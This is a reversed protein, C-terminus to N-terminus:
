DSNSGPLSASGPFAPALPDASPEGEEAPPRASRGATNWAEFIATVVTSYNEMTLLAYTDPLTVTEDYYTLGCHLLVGVETIGFRESDLMVQLLNVSRGYIRALEREAQAAVEFNMKFPRPKDLQLLYPPVIDAM